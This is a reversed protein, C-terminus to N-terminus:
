STPYADEEGLQALMWSRLEASLNNQSEISSEPPGLPKGFVIDLTGPKIRWDGKRNIAYLGICCMPLIRVGAEAATKFSGRKFPQLKGNPTRTGEPAVMVTTREERLVRTVEKMNEIAKKPNGRDVEIQGVARMWQGWIPIKFNEKKELGRLLNPFYGQYVFPELFNVHNPTLIYPEDSHINELGTVRRVRVGACRLFLRSTKRLWEDYVPKKFVLSLPFFVIFVLVLLIACRAYIFLSYATQWRTFARSTEKLKDNSSM